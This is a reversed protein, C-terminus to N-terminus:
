NGTEDLAQQLYERCGATFSHTEGHYTELISLAERYCRIADEQFNLSHHLSGLTYVMIGVLPHEPRFFCEKMTQVMETCQERALNLDGAAMAITHLQCRAKYLAMHRPHLVQIRAEVCQRVLHLEEGIDETMSARQLLPETEAVFADHTGDVGLWQDVHQWKGSSDTCRECHCDFGYTHKLTERREISTSALDIYSHCLEEGEAVDVMCRIVMANNNNTDYRIACNPHCSHNLMAGAPYIGAGVLFLLEDVIGFNNAEFRALMTEIDRVTIESDDDLLAMTLQAISSNDQHHNIAEDHFVLDEVTQFAEPNFQKMRFVRALLLTDALCETTHEGEQQQSLATCEKKHIKWDTRQCAKTCYWFSQCRSCRLLQIKPKSFCGHCRLSWQKPHLLAPVIPAETLITTGRQLPRSAVVKRHPKEGITTVGHNWVRSTTTTTSVNNNTPM